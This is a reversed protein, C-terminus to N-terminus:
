LSTMNRLEKLVEEMPVGEEEVAYRQLDAASFAAKAKAYAIALEEPSLPKPEPLFENEEPDQDNAM